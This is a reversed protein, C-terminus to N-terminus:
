IPCYKYCLFAYIIIIYFLFLRWFDLNMWKLINTCIRNVSKPKETNPLEMKTIPLICIEEVKERLKLDNNPSKKKFPACRVWRPVKFFGWLYGFILSSSAWKEFLSVYVSFGFGTLRIVDRIWEKNKPMNTEGCIIGHCIMNGRTNLM